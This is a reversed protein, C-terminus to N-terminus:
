PVKMHTFTAEVREPESLYEKVKEEMKKGEQARCNGLIQTIMRQGSVRM